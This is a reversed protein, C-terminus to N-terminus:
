PALAVGDIEIPCWPGSPPCISREYMEGEFKAPRRRSLRREAPVCVLPSCIEEIFAKVERSPVTRRGRPM